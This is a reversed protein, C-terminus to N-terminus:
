GALRGVAKPIPTSRCVRDRAGCIILLIGRLGIRALPNDESISFDMPVYTYLSDDAVGTSYFSTLLRELAETQISFLDGTHGMEALIVLRGNPLYALLATNFQEPDPSDISGSVLLTEVNTPQM